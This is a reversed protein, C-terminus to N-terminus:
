SVPFNQSPYTNGNKGDESLGQRRELINGPAPHDDLGRRAWCRLETAAYGRASARRTATRRKSPSPTQCSEERPGWHFRTAARGCHGRPPTLEPGAGPQPHQHQLLPRDCGERSRQWIRAGRGGQHGPAQRTRHTSVLAPIAAARPGSSWRSRGTADTLTPVAGEGSPPRM